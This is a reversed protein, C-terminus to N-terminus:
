APATTPGADDDAAQSATVARRKEMIRAIVLSVEYLIELPIFMAIFSFADQSPTAVMAIIANIVIAYRWNKRLFKTKM